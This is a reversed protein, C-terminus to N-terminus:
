VLSTRSMEQINVSTQRRVFVWMALMSLAWLMTVTIASLPIKLLWQLGVLLLFVICAFIQSNMALMSNGSQKAISMWLRASSLAAYTLTFFLVALPSLSFKHFLRPALISLVLGWALV